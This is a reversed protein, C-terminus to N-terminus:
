KTLKTTLFLDQLYMKGRNEKMPTHSKVKGSVQEIKKPLLGLVLRQCRYRGIGM